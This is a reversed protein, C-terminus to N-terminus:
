TQSRKLFRSVRVEFEEEEEQLFSVTVSTTRFIFVFNDRLTKPRVNSPFGNVWLDHTFASFTKKIVQSGLAM